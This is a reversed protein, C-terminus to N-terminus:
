VKGGNMKQILQRRLAAEDVSSLTEKIDSDIMKKLLMQAGYEACQAEELTMLRFGCSEVLLKLASWDGTVESMAKLADAHIRRQVTSMAAWQDLHAKTIERGLLRSMRAAVEFRDMGAKDLVAKLAQRFRFEFDSLSEQSGGALSLRDAIDQFLDLIMQDKDVSKNRRAM